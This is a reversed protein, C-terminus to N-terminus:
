TESNQFVERKLILLHTFNSVHLAFYSLLVPTNQRSLIKVVVVFFFFFFFFLLSLSLSLSLSFEFEFVKISFSLLTQDM